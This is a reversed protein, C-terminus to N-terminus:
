AKCYDTEIWPISEGDWAITEDDVENLKLKAGSVRMGDEIVPRDGILVIDARETVDPEALLRTILEPGIGHPDGPIMAIRPKANTM